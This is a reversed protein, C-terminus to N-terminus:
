GSEATVNPRFVCGSVPAQKTLDVTGDEDANFTAESAIVVDDAIRNCLRLTVAAHPNLGRVRIAVSETVLSRAPLPDFSPM